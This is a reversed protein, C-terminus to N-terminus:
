YVELDDLVSLQTHLTYTILLENTSISVADSICGLLNGMEYSTMAM